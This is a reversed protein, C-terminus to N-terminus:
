KNVTNNQAQKHNGHKLKSKALSTQKREYTETQTRKPLDTLSSTLAFMKINSKALMGLGLAVRNVLTM